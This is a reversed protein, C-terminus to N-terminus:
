AIGEINNYVVGNVEKTSVKIVIPTGNKTLTDIMAITDKDRCGYKTGDPNLYVVNTKNVYKNSVSLLVCGEPVFAPKIVTPEATEAPKEEVKSIVKGASSSGSELWKLMSAGTNRDIKFYLGDFMNTRDKSAHAIHNADIDLFTTFEYEMGERQVPALGVKKPEAKGKDNIEMIYDQKSRMTAIIHCSSELMTEVLSNHEPTIDRWAAFSNKSISAKSHKDLIGGEGAWAHSLSDIIITAYGLKEAEKITSIYKSVSYPKQIQCIDYFNDTDKGIDAYLDGSGNETDILLVKGGIGFALLLASYTKGGGSPAALGLRLKAKQRQAKRIEM